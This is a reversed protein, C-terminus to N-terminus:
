PELRYVELTPGMCACSLVHLFYPRRIVPRVYQYDLRAPRDNDRRLPSFRAALQGEKRLANRTRPVVPELFQPRVHAVVVLDFGESRLWGLPDEGLEESTGRKRPHFVEWRPGGIGEDDLGALYELWDTKPSEKRNHALSEPGYLLPLTLYPLVFLRGTGPDVNSRVWDAAQRHTDPAARVTGLHWAVGVPFALLLAVTAYAARGRVLVGATRQVGWAAFCAAYPVLPLVFRARTAGYLGLAFLYPLAYALVIALDSRDAEGPRQRARDALFVILGATALLLITPDYSYLTGLVRLFGGGNFDSLPIVHGSLNLMGDGGPKERDTWHEFHFPYFWRIAAALLLLAALIWWPSARGPRRMGILFALGFAPLVAAGSHLCSVAATAAVGALLLAGVTPRAALRLSAAVSLVSLAALSAHPRGMQAFSVVVLSSATLGAALAAWPPELFRRAVLWTGPVVALSLLMLAIRVDLRLASARQLHDALGEPPDPRPSVRVPAALNALLFPYTAKVTGGVGLPPLDRRIQDVQRIIVLEDVPTSHPLQFELGRWRLVLGLACVVAVAIASTRTRPDHTM